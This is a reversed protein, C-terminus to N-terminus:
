GKSHEERVNMIKFFQSITLIRSCDFSEILLISNRFFDNKCHFPPCPLHDIIFELSHLKAEDMSYGLKLMIQAFTIGLYVKDTGISPYNKRYKQYMESNLHANYRQYFVHELRKYDSRGLKKM